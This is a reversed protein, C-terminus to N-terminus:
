CCKNFQSFYLEISLSIRKDGLVKMDSKVSMSDSNCQINCPNVVFPVMKKEGDILFMHLFISFPAFRGGGVDLRSHSVASIISIISRTLVARLM